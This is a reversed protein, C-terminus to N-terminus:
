RYAKALAGPTKFPGLVKKPQMRKFAKGDKAILGLEGLGSEETYVQIIKRLIQQNLKSGPGFHQESHSRLKQTLGDLLDEKTFSKHKPLFELAFFHWAESREPDTVLEHHLFWQTALSEFKPDHKRVVEGFPTLEMPLGMEAVGTKHLWSRYRQGFPAGYGFPKALDKDKLVPNKLARDLLGSMSKRNLAFSGHFLVSM